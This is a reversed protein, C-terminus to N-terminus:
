RSGMESSATLEMPGHYASALWDMPARPSHRADGPQPSARSARQREPRDARNAKWRDRIGCALGATEKNAAGYGTELCRMPVGRVTFVYDSLGPVVYRRLVFHVQEEEDGCVEDRDGKEHRHVEHPV